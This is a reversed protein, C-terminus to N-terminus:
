PTFKSHGVKKRTRERVEEWRSAPMRGADYEASRRQAERVWEPGPEPRELSEWLANILRLQENPRLAQAAILIEDYESM